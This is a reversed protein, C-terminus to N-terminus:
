IKGSFFTEGAIRGPRGLLALSVNLDKRHREQSPGIPTETFAKELLYPRGIERHPNMDLVDGTTEIVPSTEPM